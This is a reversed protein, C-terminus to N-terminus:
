VGVKYAEDHVAKHDWHVGDVGRVGVDVELRQREAREHPHLGIICAVRIDRLTCSLPHPNSLVPASFARGYEAARAHLLARPFRARINVTDVAALELPVAAAASMVEAPTAWVKGPETLAAYVAKSVSSYNVGLGQMEDQEVCHPVVDRHLVIEIDLEVPCPPPNALGFASPGVGGAVHLVLNQVTITDSM